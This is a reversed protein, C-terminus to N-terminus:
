NSNKFVWLCETALEFGITNIRATLTRAKDEFYESDAWEATRDLYSTVANKLTQYDENSTPPDEDELEWQHLLLLNPYVNFLERLESRSFTQKHSIGSREDIEAWYHHMLVHTQQRENQGDKIMEFAILLGGPKLVRLMESLVKHPNSFHHLSNSICVVDFRHREYTLHHSDMVEFTYPADPFRQRAAEVAKSKLDIGFGSIETGAPALNVVTDLFSGSGTAVDLIHLQTCSELYSELVSKLREM